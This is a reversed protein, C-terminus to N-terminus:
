RGQPATLSLREDMAIDKWDYFDPGWRGRGTKYSLFFCRDAPAEKKVTSFAYSKQLAPAVSKPM